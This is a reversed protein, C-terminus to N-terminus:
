RRALSLSSLSCLKATASRRTQQNRQIRVRLQRQIRRREKQEALAAEAAPEAEAAAETAAEATYVHRRMQFAVFKVGDAANANLSM